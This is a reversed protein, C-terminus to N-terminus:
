EILIKMFDFMDLPNELTKITNQFKERIKYSEWRMKRVM